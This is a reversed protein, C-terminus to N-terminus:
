RPRMINGIQAARCERRGTRTRVVLPGQRCATSRCRREPIGTGEESDGLRLGRQGLRLGLREVGVVLREVLESGDQFLPARLDVLMLRQRVQRSLRDIQGAVVHDARVLVQGVQKGGPDAPRAPEAHRRGIEIGVVLRQQVFIERQEGHHLRREGFACFDSVGNWSTASRAVSIARALPRSAAWASTAARM